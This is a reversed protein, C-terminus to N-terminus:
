DKSFKQKDIKVKLLVFLGLIFFMLTFLVAIRRSGTILVITGFTISGIIIALKGFLGWLGFDEGFRGEKTLLGVFSRSASQTSGLSIGILSGFIFFVIKNSTFYIGAIAICWIILTIIITQKAGIKDQIFGFIFAGLSALLNTAIILIMLESTTFKLEETAFIASFTISIAIGCYYLFFSLLFIFLNKNEKTDKFTNIVKKFAINIYSYNSKINQKESREKLFIFSPLAGTLFFVSTIFMSLKIGEIKGYLNIIWVCIVLCLVGGIYGFSWAYGSIKGMKSPPAIEPLFSSIFNESLSFAMFSFIILIMSFLVDGKDPFYLLSTTIICLLSTFILHRKKSAKIDAIAGLIPGIIVVLLNAFANSLGWFFDGKQAPAIYSVFFTPYIATIIITAYSSNAFDFLCWSFIEFRKVKKDKM